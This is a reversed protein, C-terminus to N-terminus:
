EKDADRIVRAPNGAIISGPPFEGSVISGAGVVSGEGVITGKLILACAGIFVDNGIITPIRPGGRPDTVRSAAILPHFDNDVIMSHCGMRVNDGIEIRRKACIKVGSFRVDKGIIIEAGEEWTALFSRTAGLPNTSYWSRLELGDGIEIRSKRHRQILPTGFLRWNRGYHVGSWAFYMRAYPITAYRWLENRIKWPTDFPSSTSGTEQSM